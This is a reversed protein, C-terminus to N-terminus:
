RQKQKKLWEDVVPTIDFRVGQFREPPTTNLAERLRLVAPYFDVGRNQFQEDIAGLLPSIGYSDFSWNQLNNSTQIDATVASALWVVSENLAEAFSRSQVVANGDLFYYVERYTRKDKLLALIEAEWDPHAKIKALAAQRVTDRQFRNTYVLFPLIPAEAPQSAIYDLTQRSWRDEQEQRNAMEQQAQRASDRLFGFALGGSYLLSVALGSYFAAKPVLPSLGASAPPYLSLFCAVLWLLPIWVQGQWLALEHLFRPYTQDEDSHWEVKFAACFFTTAVICLWALLVTAKRIGADNAVWYFGDRVLTTVTLAFSSIAFGAGLSALVLGYGMANDGAVSPKSATLFYLGAWLLATLIFFLYGLM